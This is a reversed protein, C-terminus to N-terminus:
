SVQALELQASSKCIMARGQCLERSCRTVERFGDSAENRPVQGSFLWGVRPSAQCGVLTGRTLAQRCFNGRQAPNFLTPM